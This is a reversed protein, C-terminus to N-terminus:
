ASAGGALERLVRALAAAGAACDAASASEGPAHSVGDPNRVFLMASPVVSALIGADHGAGTPIRPVGGLVGDLRELLAADFDVRDSFSEEVVRVDCGERDAAEAADACISTVLDRVDADRDARADLHLEVRSAIANSGGPLVSLRGVTARAASATAEAARRRAALVTEAAPVMPDRRDALEAAGAHDGRGTFDLRWRGHALISTGLGLPAGLPELARGQEVHLEVFADIGAIREPDPGLGAPDGGAAAIADALTEGEADRLERALAPDVAGVLLRSGLCPIGFRGGEEEAFVAVAIPRGPVFGEARLRAVAALGAAVGLPGDLNGGGPVSDLHSGTVIAGGIAGPARWWAWLNANRDEEVALGVAGATRRFWDRMRLDAPDFAHRSWGGRQEDRGIEALEGLLAVVDTLASAGSDASM